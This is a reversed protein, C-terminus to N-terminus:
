EEMVQLLRTVENASVVENRFSEVAAGTSRQQNSNEILLAPLVAVSCVEHDIEEGSNNDTGKVRTFWACEEGICPKKLLPCIIKKNAGFM